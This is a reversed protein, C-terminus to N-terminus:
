GVDSRHVLRDGRAGHWGRAGACEGECGRSLRQDQRVRAPRDGCGHFQPLRARRRCSNGEDDRDRPRTGRGLAVAARVHPERGLVETGPVRLRRARNRSRAGRRGRESARRHLGKRGDRGRDASVHSVHEHERRDAEVDPQVGDHEGHLAAGRLRPALARRELDGRSRGAPLQDGGAAAGGGHSDAHHLAREADGDCEAELAGHKGDARAGDSSQRRDGHLQVADGRLHIGRASPLGDPEVHRSRQDASGRLADGRLARQLALLRRARVGCGGRGPVGDEVPRADHRRQAHGALPHLAAGRRASLRGRAGRIALKGLRRARARRRRDGPGRAGHDCPAVRGARAPARAADRREHDRRHPDRTRKRRDPHRHARGGDLRAAGQARRARSNRSRLQSDAREGATANPPPRQVRDNRRNRWQCKRECFRPELCGFQVHNDSCHAGPACRPRDQRRCAHGRIAIRSPRRRSGFLAAPRLASFPFPALRM